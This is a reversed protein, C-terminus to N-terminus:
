FAHRSLYDIARSLNFRDDSFMGLGSNCKSCLLERVKNTKHDHDVFLRKSSPKACIACLGDRSRFMQEYQEPTIGYNKKLWQARDRSRIQDPKEQKRKEHAARRKVSHEQKRLAWAKRRQRSIHYADVKRFAKRAEKVCTKCEKRIGSPDDNRKYFDGRTLTKKCVRCVFPESDAPRPMAALHPKRNKRYEKLYQKPDFAM